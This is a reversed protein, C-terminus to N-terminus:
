IEVGFRKMQQEIFTLDKQEKELVINKITEFGETGEKILFAEGCSDTVYVSFCKAKKAKDRSVIKETREGCLGFVWELDEVKM